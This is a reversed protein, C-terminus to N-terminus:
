NCSVPLTYTTGASLNASASSPSCVAFKTGVRYSWKLSVTTSAPLTCSYAGSTVSCTGASVTVTGIVPKGQYTFKGSIVPPITSKGAFNLSANASPLWSVSAPSWTVAYGKADKAYNMSISIKTTSSVKVSCVYKGTADSNICTGATSPSLTPAVGALGTSNLSIIGTLTVQRLSTGAFNQAGNASPKWSLSSPAWTVAYGGTDKPYNMAVTLATSSQLVSCSYKGSADSATCTGAAAPTLAPAVGPLNAGNLTIVGSLTVKSPAPPPTTSTGGTSTEATFASILPMTLALARANDQNANGCAEASGCDSLTSSSFRYQHPFTYSMISGWKASKPVYGFAYSTVGTGGGQSAVTAPDHMLGMNHGVEHTLTLNDCYYRGTDLDTGDSVVNVAYAKYASYSALGNNPGLVYGVGCSQQTNVHLPRILTVVDAGTSAMAAAVGTFAGQHAQLKSLETDNGTTDLVGSALMLGVRRLRYPLGHAVYSVNANAIYNDIASTLASLSGYLNFEGQTYYVLIDVNGTAATSKAMPPPTTATTTTTAGNETMTSLKENASVPSAQNESIHAPAQVSCLKSGILSGSTMGLLQPSYTYTQGSPSTIINYEGLPTLVRGTTSGDEATTIVAQYSAGFDSLYGVVTNSEQSTNINVDSKTLRVMGLEPLTLSVDEGPKMQDLTAFDVKIPTAGQVPAIEPKRLTQPSVGIPLAALKSSSFDAAPVIAQDTDSYALAFIQDPTMIIASAQGDKVGFTAYRNPNSVLAMRINLVDGDKSSSIVKYVYTKGGATIPFLAGVKASALASPTISHASASIQLPEPTVAAFVVTDVLMLAIALKSKSISLM